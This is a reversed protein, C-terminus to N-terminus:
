LSSHKCYYNGSEDLRVEMCKEIKISFKRMLEKKVNMFYYLVFCVSPLDNFLLACLDETVTM